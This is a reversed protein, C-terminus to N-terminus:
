FIRPFNRLMKRSFNQAELFDKTGVENQLRAVRIIEFRLLRAIQFRLANQLIAASDGRHRNFIVRLALHYSVLSGRNEERAVHSKEWAVFPFNAMKLPNTQFHGNEKRRTPFIAHGPCESLPESLAESFGRFVESYREFGRLVRQFCGRM